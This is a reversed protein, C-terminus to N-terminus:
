NDRLSFADDDAVTNTVKLQCFAHTYVAQYSCRDLLDTGVRRKKLRGDECKKGGGGGGEGVTSSLGGSDGSEVPRSVCSVESNTWSCVSAEIRSQTPSSMPATPSEASIGGGGGGAMLRVYCVPVDLTGFNASKPPFHCGNTFM